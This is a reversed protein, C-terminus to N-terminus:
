NWRFVKLAVAFTVVSLVALNLAQPWVSVLGAGENMVARLADNLATLPLAKILPQVVEPFHSSSFFVGSGIFMPIMILNMLGGVTQTNQARSALLLALGSFALAGLVSLGVLLLLSGQVTVSFALCGFGLLVPLEMVLFLMRMLVFSLLFHGRNMPTSIMRKLLKRKRTEVIEYAIGWMGASMINLGILGPLLFDIYRSGPETLHEEAVPTADQRGEARQLADDVLARALRSEPRTPDFEYTRPTGPVVVIAVKGTRLAARASELPLLMAQVEPSHALLDHTRKSEGLAEPSDGLVVAAVVPEPPRNRFAIGLAVSLLVPFGFAWFVAGPERFFLKLRAATLLWLPALRQRARQSNV